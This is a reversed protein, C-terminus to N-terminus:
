ENRSTGRLIQREAKWKTAADDACERFVDRGYKRRVADDVVSHYADVYSVLSESVVCGAVAHFHINYRERLCQAYELRWPIPLGYGLVEYRGRRIDRYAALRGRIPAALSWLWCSTVFLLLTCSTTILKHARIYHWMKM